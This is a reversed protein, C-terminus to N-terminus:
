KNGRQTALFEEDRLSKSEKRNGLWRNNKQNHRARCEQVEKEKQMKELERYKGFIQGVIKRGFGEQAYGSLIGEGCRKEVLSSLFYM